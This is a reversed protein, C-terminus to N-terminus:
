RSIRCPSDCWVHRCSRQGRKRCTIRDPDALAPRHGDRPLVVPDAGAAAVTAALWTSAEVDDYEVFPSFESWGSPGDLLMERQRKPLKSWPTDLDIRYEASIAALLLDYYDTTRDTWPLIAGEALSREPDIVLDPDVESMFGLGARSKRGEAKMIREWIMRPIPIMYRGIGLLLSDKM